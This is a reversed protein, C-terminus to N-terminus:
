DRVFSRRPVLPRLSRRALCGRLVGAGYAAEDLLCAATFRLPDLAPRGRRWEDLPLALLLATAPARTRGGRLVGALLAPTAFWTAARSLGIGTAWVTGAGARLALTAPLGRRRLRGVAPVMPALAAATAAGPRRALLLAVAATPWPPLLLAPVRGPHREDLPAVSTGYAFRRRLMTSWDGPHDHVVLPQATYRVRAGDAGLRWVADVDEGVRLGEDFALARRRVVLAATPVYAVPRGPGALGEVPGLDLPFRAAVYRGVVSHPRPAPGPRVRPAVAVVREDDFHPWLRHLWGPAAVCDSDLFAVLPTVAEQLARNRAAAPGLSRDHRVVRAAHRACVAAIADADRSGDDVVLVDVGAGAGGLSALCRDLEAPRDHVPVAVTVTGAPPAASPPHPHALGTEVLRGGLRRANEGLSDGQGDRTRRLEALAARGGPALRLLRAPRGGLVWAGDPGVRTARDLAVTWGAPLLDM